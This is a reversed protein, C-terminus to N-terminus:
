LAEEAEGLLKRAKRVIDRVNRSGEPGAAEIVQRLDETSVMAYTTSTNSPAWLVMPPRIDGLARAREIQDFCDQVKKPIQKGSKNELAFHDALGGQKWNEENAGQGHRAVRVGAQKM